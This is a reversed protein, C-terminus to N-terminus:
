PVPTCAVTTASPASTDVTQCDWATAFQEALASQTKDVADTNADDRKAALEHSTGLVAVGLLACCVAAAPALVVDRLRTARGLTYITRHAASSLVALAIGLILTLVIGVGALILWHPSVAAATAQDTPITTVVSTPHTRM